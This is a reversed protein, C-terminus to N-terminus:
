DAVQSSSLFTKLKDKIEDIRQRYGKGGCFDSDFKCANTCKYVHSYKCPHLQLPVHAGNSMDPLTHSLWINKDCFFCMDIVDMNMVKICTGIIIKQVDTNIGHKEMGCKFLFLKPAISCDDNKYLTYLFLDRFMKKNNYQMAIEIPTLGNFPHNSYNWCYDLFPHTHPNHQIVLKVIKTNNNYCAILLPDNTTDIGFSLHDNYNSTKIIQDKNNANVQFNNLLLQTLWLNNNLCANTLMSCQEHYSYRPDIGCALLFSIIKQKEVDHSKIAILDKIYTNAKCHIEHDFFLVMKFALWIMFPYQDVYHITNQWDTHFRNNSWTTIFIKELLLYRIKGLLM